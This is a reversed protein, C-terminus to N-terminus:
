KVVVYDGGLIIIGEDGVKKGKVGEDKDEYVM